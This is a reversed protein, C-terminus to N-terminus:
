PMGQFCPALACITETNMTNQKPPPPLPRVPKNSAKTMQGNMSWPDKKLRLVAGVGLLYVELLQASM